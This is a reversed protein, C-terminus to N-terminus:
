PEPRPEPEGEPLGAKRLAASLHDAYAPALGLQLRREHESQVTLEADLTLAKGVAERAEEIRDLQAYAAAKYLWYTPSREQEPYRNSRALADGYRRAFFYAIPLYSPSTPYPDLREALELLGVGREAAGAYTVAYGLAQRIGYDNPNLTHAKEFMKLAADNRGSLQYFLGLAAFGWEESPDTEIARRAWAGAQHLWEERSDSWGRFIDKLYTLACEAMARAYNPDAEIAKRFLERALANDERTTRREHEVGRLYLEYAQLDRTPLTRIRELDARQVVGSNSGLLAAITHSVEKQVAFLDEAPREFQEAWVHRGSAADILFVSIRLKGDLSRITGELVYRVRLERAVESVDAGGQRYRSSSNSSIVFLSSFKSLDTIIDRTIGEAFYDHPTDGPLNKFPLVAISPAAPTEWPAGSFGSGHEGTRSAQFTWVGVLLLTGALAATLWGPKVRHATGQGDAATSRTNRPHFGAALSVRPSRPARRVAAHAAQLEEGPDQDLELRLLEICHQYHADALATRGLGAYLEILRAHAAENLPASVVLRRATAIAAEADGAATQYDLLRALADAALEALRYRQSLLWEEFGAEQIEVGQLIEGRYLRSAELLATSDQSKAVQEFADVDLEFSSRTLWVGDPGSQLVAAASGLATRITTLAQSLNHHARREDREGWLLGALRSRAVAEGHSMALLAILGQLKPGLRAACQTGASTLGFGGLLRISVV